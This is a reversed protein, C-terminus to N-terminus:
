RDSGAASPPAGGAKRREEERRRRHYEAVGALTDEVLERLATQQQQTMESVLMAIRRATFSLPRRVMM